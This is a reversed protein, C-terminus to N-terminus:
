GCFRAGEPLALPVGVAIRGPALAGSQWLKPGTSEVFLRVPGPAPAGRPAPRQPGCGADAGLVVERIEGHFRGASLQAYQQQWGTLLAAQEDADATTQQNLFLAM